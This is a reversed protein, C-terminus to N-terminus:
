TVTDNQLNIFPIVGLIQMYHKTRIFLARKFREHTQILEPVTGLLCCKLTDRIPKGSRM